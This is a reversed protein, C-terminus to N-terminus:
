RLQQRQRLVPLFPWLSSRIQQGAFATFQDCRIPTMMAEETVEKSVAVPRKLHLVKVSKELDSMLPTSTQEKPLVNESMLEESKENSTTAILHEL